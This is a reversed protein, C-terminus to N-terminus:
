RGNFFRELLMTRLKDVSEPSVCCPQEFRKSLKITLSYTTFCVRCKDCFQFHENLEDIIDQSLTNELYDQFLSSCIICKM